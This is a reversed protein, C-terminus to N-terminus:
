CGVASRVLLVGVMQDPEPRYEPRHLEIWDFEYHQWASLAQKAAEFTAQGSGIQIRTHDVVFGTPNEENRTAGISSCTYGLSSQSDIFETIQQYGPNSFLYM